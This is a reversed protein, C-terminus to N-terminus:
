KLPRLGDAGKSLAAYIEEATIVGLITEGSQPLKLWKYDDDFIM